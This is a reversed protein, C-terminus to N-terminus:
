EGSGKSGGYQIRVPQNELDGPRRVPGLAWLEARVAELHDEDEWSRPDDDYSTGAM